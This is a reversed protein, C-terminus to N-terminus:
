AVISETSTENKIESLDFWISLGVMGLLIWILLLESTREGRLLMSLIELASGFALGIGGTRTWRYLATQGPPARHLDRPRKRRLFLLFGTFLIFGINLLSWTM